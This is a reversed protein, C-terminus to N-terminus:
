HKIGFTKVAKESAKKDSELYLLLVNEVFNSLTRNESKAALDFRQKMEPTVRLTVYETKEM